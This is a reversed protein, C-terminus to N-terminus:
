AFLQVAIMIMCFGSHCNLHMRVRCWTNIEFTFHAHTLTTSYNKGFWLLLYLNPLDILYFLLKANHQNMRQMIYYQQMDENSGDKLRNHGWFAISTRDQIICNSYLLTSSRSSFSSFRFPLADNPILITKLWYGHKLILLMMRKILLQNSTKYPMNKVDCQSNLIM